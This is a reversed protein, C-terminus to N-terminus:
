RSNLFCFLGAWCLFFLAFFLGFAPASKFDQIGSKLASLVDSISITQISPPPSAELTTADSM